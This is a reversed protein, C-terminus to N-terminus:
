RFAWFFGYCRLPEAPCSLRVFPTLSMQILNFPLELHRRLFKQQRHHSPTVRRCNTGSPAVVHETGGTRALNARREEGTVEEFSCGPILSLRLAALYLGHRMVM